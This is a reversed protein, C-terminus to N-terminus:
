SLSLDSFLESEGNLLFDTPKVHISNTQQFDILM